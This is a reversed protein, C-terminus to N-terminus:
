REVYNVCKEVHRPKGKCELWIKCTACEQNKILKEEAKPKEVKEKPEAHNLLSSM